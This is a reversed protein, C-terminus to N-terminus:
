GGVFKLVVGGILLLLSIGGCVLGWVLMGFPANATSEVYQDPLDTTLTDGVITDDGLWTGEVTLLSGPLYGTYRFEQGEGEETVEEANAFRTSPSLEVQVARGGPMEASIVTISGPQAQWDMESVPEDPDDSLERMEVREAVLGGAGLPADEAVRVLFLGRAGVEFADLEEATVESLSSVESARQTSMPVGAFVTCCATALGFLGIAIMIVSFGGRNRSRRGLLFGGLFSAGMRANDNNNNDTM